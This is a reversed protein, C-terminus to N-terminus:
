LKAATNKLFNEYKRIAMELDPHENKIHSFGVVAAVSHTSNFHSQIERFYKPSVLSDADLCFLLSDPYSYKLALDMGIKRAMGVGAHKKPVSMGDSSADILAVYFPDSRKKLNLITQQNNDIINPSAGVENNVVVIVMTSNFSDVECQSLSDLTQGIYELEAYAPIIVIHQFRQSPIPLLEWPGKVGRKNLYSEIQTSM